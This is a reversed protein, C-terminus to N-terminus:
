RGSSIFKFTEEIEGKVEAFRYAPVLKSNELEVNMPDEEAKLSFEHRITEYLLEAERCIAEHRDFNVEWNRLNNNILNQDLANIETLGAERKLSEEIEEIEPILKTRLLVRPDLM